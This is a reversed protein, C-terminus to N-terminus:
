YDIESKDILDQTPWFDENWAPAINLSIKAETEKELDEFFQIQKTSLKRYECQELISKLFDHRHDQSQSHELVKLIRPLFESSDEFSLKQDWM